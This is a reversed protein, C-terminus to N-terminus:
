IDIVYFLGKEDLAPQIVKNIHEYRDAAVLCALTEKRVYESIRRTFKGIELTSPESTNLVEIGREQLMNSVENILTSKGVGNPGDFAFFGAM